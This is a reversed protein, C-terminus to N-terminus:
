LEPPSMYPAEPANSPEAFINLLLPGTQFSDPPKAISIRWALVQWQQAIPM